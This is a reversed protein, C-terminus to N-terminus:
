QLKKLVVKSRDEKYSTNVLKVLNAYSAAPYSGEKQIYTRTYLIKGDAVTCQSKYSGFENELVMSKPQSEVAYGEPITIEVSDTDTFATELQVPYKRVSDQNLLLSNKSLANPQVFLRSGSASAFGRVTLELQEEVVPKKGEKITHSYRSLDYHPLDVSEKLYEELKTKNEGKLLDFITEQQLAQYKTHAVITANGDALLQVSVKRKQLNDAHSYVPTQVFTSKDGDIVLARRNDTFSGVFGTPETQSTCELWVSDKSPLPVVVIVHNFQSVLMEENLYKNSARVLTYKAPLGAAKLLSITFNSLAKCDGYKNKAVYEASFPQWGGIGLQIGIYHSNAQVYKYIANIKEFDTKCPAVLEQVTNVLSPPLNQRNELLRQQFAGFAQWSEFSGKEGKLEFQTPMPYVIPAITAWAPMYKEWALPSFNTLTFTNVTSNGDVTTVPKNPLNSWKFNVPIDNSIKYVAQSHQVGVGVQPVPVWRPYFLTSNYHMEYQYEITYPFDKSELNLLKVRSNDVFTGGDTASVDQIDAKKIEKMRTGFKNYVRAEIDTIPEDTEYHLQLSALNDANSNFITIATKVTLVAKSISKVEFVQQHSRVVANANMSINPPVLLVNYLPNEKQTFGQYFCLSAAIALLPTKM